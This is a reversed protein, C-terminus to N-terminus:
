ELAAMAPIAITLPLGFAELVGSVQGAAAVLLVVVYFGQRMVAARKTARISQGTGYSSSAM